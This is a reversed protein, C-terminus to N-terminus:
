GPDATVSLSQADYGAPLELQNREGCAPCYFMALVPVDTAGEEATASLAARCKRCEVRNRWSPSM